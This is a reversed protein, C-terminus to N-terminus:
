PMVLSDLLYRYIRLFLSPHMWNIRRKKVSPPSGIQTKAQLETGTSKGTEGSANSGKVGDSGQTGVMDKEQSGSVIVDLPQNPIVQFTKRPRGPGRKVSVVRVSPTPVIQVSPAPVIQVSPTAELELRRKEQQQAWEEPTLKTMFVDLTKQQFGTKPPM